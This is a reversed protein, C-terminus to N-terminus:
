EEWFQQGGDGPGGGVDTYLSAEKPLCRNEVPTNDVHM